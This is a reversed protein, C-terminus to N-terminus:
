LKEELEKIRNELKAIKKDQMETLEYIVTFLVFVITGIVFSIGIQIKIPDGSELLKWGGFFGCIFVIVFCMLVSLAWGLLFKLDKKLKKM